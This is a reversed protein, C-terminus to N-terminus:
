EDRGRAGEAKGEKQAFNRGCKGDVVFSTAREKGQFTAVPLGTLEKLREAVKQGKYPSKDPANWEHGFFYDERRSPERARYVIPIGAPIGEFEQEFYGAIIIAKVRAGPAIKVRWLTSMYSVLSLVIPKDTPRVEVDVTDKNSERFWDPWYISVVHLEAGASIALLEKPTPEKPPTPRPKRVKQAFNCGRKGDVVFSAGRDAGQFTSVLLGTLDNLREVMHRYALSNWQYAGPLEERQSRKSDFYSSTDCFYQIPIDDPVGDISQHGGAAIIAKIQAGRMRKVNWVNDKGGLVLVVPKATPRVEVDVPKGPEDSDTGGIGVVHLEADASAALLDKPTLEKNARPRPIVGNQGKDRGRKGDVVFSDGDNQGQFSAVPLGTEKNLRRVMERWQPTNWQYAWFWGEKRRSDDVPFYSRNAVPVDAPLGKVEQAFYGSVIVKKIRAGAACKIRWDVEMYSTLVLVVPKSTPRVEVEVNGGAGGGDKSWYVGIVHMEADAFDTKNEAPKPRKEAVPPLPTNQPPASPGVQTQQQAVPGPQGLLGVCALPAAALLLIAGLKLATASLTKTAGNALIVAQASLAATTTGRLSLLVGETTAIVLAPPAAEVVPSLATACLISSLTVGRRTLRDQLLKRAKALRSSVTGEKWGLERAAQTYSKGELCCLVFPARYKTPLRAVEEDLMAQLERLSALSIPQEPERGQGRKERRRRRQAARKQSLATRYAVGYLWCSITEKKSVSDAQRALVLFTAQFADESDHRDRLVRHCVGWVLPGHREVLATFASEDRKATFQQMLELDTKDKVAKRAVMKRLQQLIPNVSEKAM